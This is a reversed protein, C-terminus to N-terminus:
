GSKNKKNRRLRGWVGTQYHHRWAHAVGVAEAQLGQPVDVFLQVVVVVPPNLHVLAYLHTCGGRFWNSPLATLSLHVTPTDSGFDCAMSIPFFDETINYSQDKEYLGSVQEVQIHQAFNNLHKIKEPKFNLLLRKELVIIGRSSHGTRVSTPYVERLSYLVLTSLWLSALTKLM